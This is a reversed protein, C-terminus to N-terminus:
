RADRADGSSSRHSLVARYIAILKDMAADASYEQDVRQRFLKGYHRRKEDNSLLECLGNALATSNEAEVLVGVRGNDLVERCQGVDTAVTALGAAGYELLALPLGESRSSIVGIDCKPLVEAANNCTELVTVHSELAAEAIARDVERRVQSEVNKGVCVLEVAPHRDVVQRMAQVLNLHDKQHRFNAVCVVRQRQEGSSFLTPTETISPVVFNALYWVRSSPIRLTDRSWELLPQNVAIVGHARKTLCRFQFASRVETGQRGFHDHWVIRRNAMGLTVLNAMFIASGHAHIIRIDERRVFKRLRAIASWDLRRKRNLAIRGVQDSVLGALPGEFRTTGLYARFGGRSPLLNALNVAVRELGGAALTDVLQLVGIETTSCVM